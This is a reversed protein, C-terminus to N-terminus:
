KKNIMIAPIDIEESNNLGILNLNTVDEDNNNAIILM